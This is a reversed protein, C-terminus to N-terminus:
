NNIKGSCYRSCFPGTRARGRKINCERNRIYESSVYFEKKCFACILIESLKLGTTHYKQHFGIEVIQLNDESDNTFNGDIHHVQEERFLLRGERLEVLFKPYSVTIRTPGSVLIIHKRNDKRLYPGYIKYNEYPKQKCIEAKM